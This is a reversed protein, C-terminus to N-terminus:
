WRSITTCLAGGWRNRRDAPVDDDCRSCAPYSSPSDPIFHGCLMVALLGSMWYTTIVANRSQPKKFTPVGNAIAEIGTMSSCGNAFARLILFFILWNMGQKEESVAPIVPATGAWTQYLGLGIVGLIGGVFLYTPFVFAKASESVGRLNILMLVGILVALDILLRHPIM